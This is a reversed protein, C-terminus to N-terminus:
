KKSINPCQSPIVDNITETHTKLGLTPTLIPLKGVVEQVSKTSTSVDKLLLNEDDEESGESVEDAIVESGTM